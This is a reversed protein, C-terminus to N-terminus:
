LLAAALGVAVFLAVVVAHLLPMELRLVNHQLGLFALDDLQEFRDIVRGRLREACGDGLAPDRAVATLLALLEDTASQVMGNMASPSIVMSLLLRGPMRAFIGNVRREVIARTARAGRGAVLEDIVVPLRFAEDAVTDAYYGTIRRREPLLPSFLAGPVRHRWAQPPPTFLWGVSAVSALYGLATGGVLGAIGPMFIALAAPGAALLPMLVVLARFAPTAVSGIMAALMAPRAGFFRTQMAPVDILDDIAEVVEGLAHHIARPVTRLLHDEFQVKVAGPLGRWVMGLHRGAVRSLIATHDAEFRRVVAEAIADPGLALAIEKLPGVAELTLGGIRGGIEGARREIVAPLRGDAYLSRPVPLGESLLRAAVLPVVALAALTALFLTVVTQLLRGCGHGRM